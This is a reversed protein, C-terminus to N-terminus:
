INVGMLRLTMVVVWVALATPILCIAAHAVVSICILLVGMISNFAGAVARRKLVDIVM